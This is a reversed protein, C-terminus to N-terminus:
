GLEREVQVDFQADHQGSARCGRLRSPMDVVHNSHTDETAQLALRLAQLTAVTIQAGSVALLGNVPEPTCEGQPPARHRQLVYSCIDLNVRFVWEEDAVEGYLLGESAFQQRQESAGVLVMSPSIPFVLRVAGGSKM